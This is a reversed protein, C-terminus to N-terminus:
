LKGGGSRREGGRRDPPLPLTAEDDRWSVAEAPLDTIIGDCGAERLRQWDRERNPTWPVVKQGHAQLEEVLAADVFRYSPFVWTAGLRQAYAGPDVIRGFTTLGLPFPARRRALEAITTHDFSAVIINPWSAIEEQLQDEWKGRKVELIMTTRSAFSALERLPHVAVAPDCQDFTLSEIEREKLDDDHFLVARRDALLRLDTEFGDAGGRLAEEFSAPTNEPARRPSGRHGFILFPQPMGYDRTLM